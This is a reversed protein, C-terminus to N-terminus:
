NAKRWLVISLGILYLGNIILLLGVWNTDQPVPDGAAPIERPVTESVDFYELVDKIDSKAIRSIRTDSRLDFLATGKKVPLAFADDDVEVNFEADIIATLKMLRAHPGRYSVEIKVAPMTVGGSFSTPNLYYVEKVIHGIPTKISEHIPLHSENDVILQNKGLNLILRSGSKKISTVHNLKDPHPISVLWKYGYYFLPTHTLEYCEVSQSDIM